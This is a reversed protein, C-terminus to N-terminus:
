SKRVRTDVLTETGKGFPSQRVVKSKSIAKAEHDSLPLNITGIDPIYLAPGPCSKLVGFCSFSNPETADSLAQCIQQKITSASM